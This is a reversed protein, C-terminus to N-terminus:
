RHELYLGKLPHISVLLDNLALVNNKAHESSKIFTNITLLVPVDELVRNELLHGLLCGVGLLDPEIFKIGIKLSEFARFVVLLFNLKSSVYNAFDIVFFHKFIKEQDHYIEWAVM